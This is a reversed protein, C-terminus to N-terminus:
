ISLGNFHKEGKIILASIKSRDVDNSKSQVLRNWAFIVSVFLNFKNNDISFNLLQSIMYFSLNYNDMILIKQDFIISLINEDFDKPLIDFYLKLLKANVFNSFLYRYIEYEPRIEEVIQIASKILDIYKLDLLYSIFEYIDFEIDDINKEIIEPLLKLVVLRLSRNSKLLNFVNMFDSNLLIPEYIEPYKELIDFDFKHLYRLIGIINDVDNGKMNLLKALKNIKNQSLLQIQSMTYSPIEIELQILNYAKMWELISDPINNYSTNTNKMLEFAIDYANENSKNNEKLFIYIDNSPVDRIDVM